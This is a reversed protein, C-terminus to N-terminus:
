RLVALRVQWIRVIGDNSATAVLSGDPSLALNNIHLDPMAIPGILKGTTADWVRTVQDPSNAAVRQGDGSLALGLLRVELKEILPKSTGDATDWVLLRGDDEATYLTGTTPSYALGNIKGTGEPLVKWRRTTLNWVRVKKDDGTSALEPRTPHFALAHIPMDNGPLPDLEKQTTLDLIRIAKDRGAFALRRGNPSFAVVYLPGNNGTSRWCVKGAARDWLCAHGDDGATALWRGDRSCAVRYLPAHHEGLTRLELQCLRQLYYWEFHRLDVDDDPGPELEHLIDRVEDIRGDRWKQTAWRYEAVYRRRDSEKKRDLAIRAQEEAAHEGRGARIAFYTSFVSGGILTAAIREGALCNGSQPCVM